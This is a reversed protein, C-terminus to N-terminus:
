DGIGIMSRITTPLAGARNLKASVTVLKTDGLAQINWRVDYVMQLGNTSGCTTYNMYYGATTSATYDITGSSLVSEGGATTNVTNATGACDMIATSTTGVPVSMIKETVMQALVTSNNQQRNGFNTRLAFPIAAACGIVGVMFVVMAIMLELLSMGRQKKHRMTGKNLAM